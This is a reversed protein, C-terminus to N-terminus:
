LPDKLSLMEKKWCRGKREVATLILYIDYQKPLEPNVSAQLCQVNKYLDVQCFKAHVISTLSEHFISPFKRYLKNSTYLYLIHDDLKSSLRLVLKVIDIAGRIDLSMPGVHPKEPASLVWIPGM